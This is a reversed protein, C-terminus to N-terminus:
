PLFAAQRADGERIGAHLIVAGPFGSHRAHPAKAQNFPNMTSKPNQITDCPSTTTSSEAMRDLRPPIGPHTEDRIRDKTQKEVWGNIIKRAGKADKKFDLFELPAAYTKEVLSLFPAQFPYGQIGFLRNAVNIELPSSLGGHDKARKVREQSGAALRRLDVAIGAMGEHVAAELVGFHLVKAMEAKTKGDAGAYTMALATAISWPSAVVNGGEAALRQHLALGFANISDGTTKFSEAAPM